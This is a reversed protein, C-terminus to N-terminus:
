RVPRRCGDEYKLAQRAPVLGPGDRRRRARPRRRWRADNLDTFASRPTWYMSCSALMEASACYSPNLVRGAPRRKGPIGAQSPPFAAIRETFTRPRRTALRAIPSPLGTQAPTVLGHRRGPYTAGGKHRTPWIPTRASWARYNERQQLYREAGWGEALCPVHPGGAPMLRCCAM